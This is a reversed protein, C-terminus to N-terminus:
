SLVKGVRASAEARLRGEGTAATPWISGSKPRSCCWNTVEAPRRRRFVRGVREGLLLPSARRASSVAQTGRSKKHTTPYTPRPPTPPGLPWPVAGTSASLARPPGERPEAGLHGSSGGDRPPLSGLNNNGRVSGEPRPSGPAPRLPVPSPDPALTAPPLRPPGPRPPTVGPRRSAPEPSGASSDPGPRDSAGRRSQFPRYPEPYSARGLLFFLFETLHLFPPPRALSRPGPASPPGKKRESTPGAARSHPESGETAPDPARPAHTSPSSDRHLTWASARRARARPTHTQPPGRDRARTRAGAGEPGGRGRRAYAGTPRARPHRASAPAPPRPRALGPRYPTPDRAARALALPPLSSPRPPPPLGACHTGNADRRRPSSVRVCPARAPLSPSGSAPVPRHRGAKGRM